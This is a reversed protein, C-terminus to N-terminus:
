IIVGRRQEEDVPPLPVDLTAFGPASLTLGGAENWLASLQSMQPVARQPLFGGTGEDVLMWRRDGDLGLKDLGIGQLLQGKGSKLPYRYLASLRLM